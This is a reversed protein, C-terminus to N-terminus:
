LLIIIEHSFMTPMWKGLSLSFLNKNLILFIIPAGARFVSNVINPNFNGILNDLYKEFQGNFVKPSSVFIGGNFPVDMIVDVGGILSDRPVHLDFLRDVNSQLYCDLDLFIFRDIPKDGLYDIINFLNYHHRYPM